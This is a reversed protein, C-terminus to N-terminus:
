HWKASPAILTTGDIMLSTMWYQNYLLAWTDGAMNCKKLLDCHSHNYWCQERKFASLTKSSQRKFTGCQMILFFFVHELVDSLLVHQRHVLRSLTWVRFQSTSWCSNRRECKAQIKGSADNFFSSNIMEDHQGATFHPAFMTDYSNGKLMEAILSFVHCWLFESEEAYSRSLRRKVMRGEQDEKKTTRTCNQLRQKHTGYISQGKKKKKLDM